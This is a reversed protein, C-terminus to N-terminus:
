ELQELYELEGLVKLVKNAQQGGHLEKDKAM